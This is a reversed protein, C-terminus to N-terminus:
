ILWFNGRLRSPVAVLLDFPNSSGGCYIVIASKPNYDNRVSHQGM